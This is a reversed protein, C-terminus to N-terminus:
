EQPTVPFRLFFTTGTGEDSEFSVSGHLYRETILKVSFTGLGRGKGKTSFSRQFMQLQIDRPMVTPNNVRFEVTGPKMEYSITVTEGPDSAELANKVLNGLVRGILTRDTVFAAENEGPAVEISKGEAVQHSRYLEAVEEVLEQPDVPELRPELEGSEAASIERQSQIEDILRRSLRGLMDRMEEQEVPGVMRLLETAGRIGGATNLVDHFFIRELARRRNEDSVDAISFLTYKGDFFSFPTALVRLDLGEGSGKKLIRCERCDPKGKQATLIANVAGCQSCFETTGCGGENEDAHVCNFAEGPRLGFVTALNGLGLVDALAQNAFVIQRDGNLVLVINPMSNLLMGLFSDASLEATQKEIEEKPTRAAPAFQTDPKSSM